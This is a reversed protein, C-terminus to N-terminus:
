SNKAIAQGIATSIRRWSESEDVIKDVPINVMITALQELTITLRHLDDFLPISKGTKLLFTTKHVSTLADSATDIMDSIKEPHYTMQLQHLTGVTWSGAIIFGITMILLCVATVVQAVVALWQCSVIHRISM